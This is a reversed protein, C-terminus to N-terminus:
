IKICVTYNLSREDRVLYNSADLYSGNIVIFFIKQIKPGVYMIGCSHIFALFLGFGLFWNNWPFVSLFDAGLPPILVFLPLLRERYGHHGIHPIIWHGGGESWPIVCVHTEALTLSQNPRSAHLSVSTSFPPHHFCCLSPYRLAFWTSWLFLCSCYLLYSFVDMSRIFMSVSELNCDWDLYM